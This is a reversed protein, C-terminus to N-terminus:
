PKTAHMVAKIQSFVKIAAEPKDCCQKFPSLSKAQNRLNIEETRHGPFLEIVM